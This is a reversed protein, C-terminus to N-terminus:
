KRGEWDGLTGIQKLHEIDGWTNLTWIGDQIAFLNLGANYLEFDRPLHLPKNMARYYCDGLPGGHTVVVLRKNPYIAALDELCTTMRRYRDFISEGDPVPDHIRSDRYIAYANPYQKEADTRTLGSLVGLDWERLRPDTHIAHGTQQVIAEATQVARSLDSSYLADFSESKLRLAVAHAQQLGRANLPVSRHGQIRGTANWETEGHRILIFETM